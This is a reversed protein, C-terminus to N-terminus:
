TVPPDSRLPPRPPSFLPRAPPLPYSLTNFLRETIEKLGSLLVSELPKYVVIDNQPVDLFEGVGWDTHRKISFSRANFHRNSETYLSCIFMERMKNMKIYTKPSVDVGTELPADLIDCLLLLHCIFTSYLFRTCTCAYIYVRM